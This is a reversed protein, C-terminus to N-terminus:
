GDPSTNPFYLFYTIHFLLLAVQSCLKQGEINQQCLKTRKPKRKNNTNMRKNRSAGDPRCGDPKGKHPAPLYIYINIVMGSYGENDIRFLPKQRYPLDVNISVPSRYHDIRFISSSRYPPDILGGESCRRAPPRFGEKPRYCIPPFPGSRLSRNDANKM